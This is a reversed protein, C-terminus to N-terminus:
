LTEQTHILMVDEIMKISVAKGKLVTGTKYAKENGNRMEAISKRANRGSLDGIVRPIKLVFWLVIATVLFVGALIYSTVSLTSLTEVM